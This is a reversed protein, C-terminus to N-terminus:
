RSEAYFYMWILVFLGLIPETTESIALTKVQSKLFILSEYMKTKTPTSPM